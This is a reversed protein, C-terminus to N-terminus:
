YVTPLSDWWGYVYKAFTRGVREAMEKRLLHVQLLDCLGNVTGAAAITARPIGLRLANQETIKRPRTACVSGRPTLRADTGRQARLKGIPDRLQFKVGYPFQKYIGVIAGNEEFEMHMNLNNRGITFWEEGTYLQVVQGDGYAIPDTAVFKHDPIIRRAVDKYKRAYDYMVFIGLSAMFGYLQSFEERFARDEVFRQAVLRQNDVTVRMLFERMAVPDVPHKKADKPRANAYHARLMAIVDGEFTARAGFQSLAVEDETSADIAFDHEHAATMTMATDQAQQIATGRLFAEIDIVTRMRTVGAVEVTEIPALWLVINGDIDRSGVVYHKRAGITVARDANNTGTVLFAIAIDISSEAILRPNMYVGFPPARVKERLDSERWISREAFLRKIINITFQIEHAGYGYAYFTDVRLSKPMTFRVAEDFMLLGLTDHDARTIANHQIGSDVANRAMEREISQVTVYSALKLAYRRIEPADNAQAVNGDESM